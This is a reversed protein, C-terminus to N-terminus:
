EIEKLLDRYIGMGNLDVVWYFHLHRVL